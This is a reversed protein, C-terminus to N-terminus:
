DRKGRIFNAVKNIERISVYAAQLRETKGCSSFLMDGKGLLNDAGKCGLINADVHSAVSFAIRTPFNAKVTGSVVDASPRQTSLILHIGSARAKQALRQLQAEVVKAYKSGVLDAYEDVVAVIVPLREGQPRSANFETFDRAGHGLLLKYRDDMEKLLADFVKVADEYEDIVKGLVLHPLGNYSSFEVRKFDVLVFRLESPAYRFFSGTILTHLFNSKGSGTTGGVLLHPFGNLTRYISRYEIDSGLLVDAAKGKEPAAALLSRLPITERDCNEVEVGILDKGEIPLLLRVKRKLAMAIDKEISAIKALPVSSELRLEIRSFSAGIVLNEAEANIEFEALKGKLVKSIETIDALNKERLEMSDTPADLLTLPPFEYDGHYSFDIEDDAPKPEAPKAPAPAPPPAVPAAPKPAPVPAPPPAVPEHSAPAGEAIKEKPKETFEGELKKLTDEFDTEDKKIEAELVARVEEDRIDTLETVSSAFNTHNERLLAQLQQSTESQRYLAKMFLKQSDAVRISKSTKYVDRMVSNLSKVFKANLAQMECLDRAIIYNSLMDQAQALQFMANKLLTVYAGYQSRNGKKLEIKAKEAYEDRRRALKEIAGNLERLIEAQERKKELDKKFKRFSM